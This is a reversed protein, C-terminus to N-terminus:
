PRLRDYRTAGRYFQSRIKRELGIGMCGVYSVDAFVTSMAVMETWILKLKLEIM